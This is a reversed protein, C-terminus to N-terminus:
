FIPKPFDRLCIENFEFNELSKLFTLKLVDDDPDKFESKSLKSIEYRKVCFPFM